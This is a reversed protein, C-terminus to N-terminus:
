GGRKSKEAPQETEEDPMEVLEGDDDLALRSGRKPKEAAEADTRRREREIEQQVIFNSAERYGIWLAHAIYLLVLLPIVGETSRPLWSQEIALTLALCVVVTLVLHAVFRKLRNLRKRIREHVANGDPYGPLV